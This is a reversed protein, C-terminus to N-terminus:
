LPPSTLPVDVEDDLRRLVEVHVDVLHVAEEVPGHGVPSLELIIDSKRIRRFYLELTSLDKESTGFHPSPIMELLVVEPVHNWSDQDFGSRDECSWCCGMISSFDFKAKTREDNQLSM